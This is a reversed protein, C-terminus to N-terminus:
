KAVAVFGGFTAVRRVADGSLVVIREAAAPGRFRRAQSVEKRLRAEIITADASSIIIDGVIGQNAHDTKTRVLHQITM